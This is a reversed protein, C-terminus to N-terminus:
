PKKTDTPNVIINGRIREWNAPVSVAPQPTTFFKLVIVDVGVRRFQYIAHGSTATTAGPPLATLDTIRLNGFFQNAFNHASQYTDKGYALGAYAEVAAHAIIEGPLVANAKGFQTLDIRDLINFGPKAYQDGLIFDSFPRLELTATHDKDTIADYLARESESLKSPDVTGAVSLQGTKEDRTVQFQADKRNNLDTVTQTCAEASVKRCDIVVLMGTPDTYVLPNNRAYSYLNLLQPDRLRGLEVFIPDVSSFRGV